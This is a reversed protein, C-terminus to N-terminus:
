TWARDLNTIAEMSFERLDDGKQPASKEKQKDLYNRYNAEAIAAWALEETKFAGLQEDVDEVEIDIDVLTSQMVSIPISNLVTFPNDSTIGQINDMRSTLACAKDAIPIGHRAIRSSTRSAVM